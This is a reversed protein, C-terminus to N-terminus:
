GGGGVNGAARGLATVAFDDPPGGHTTLSFSFARQEGPPLGPGVTDSSLASRRFGTVTGQADYTTVFIDVSQAGHQASLNEVLGSVRFQPGTSRGETETVSIPVYASALIGAAQGRIVTMHYSVWDPPPATFLVSFPSCAGPAVIDMSVFTNTEVLPEGASDLLTAQVQVNTLTVATTNVVEGLGLLSDVPTQYFAVGQIQIPLPTPTPLLQGSITQDDTEDVPIILRQGVQLFQPNDIGNAAQLAEVSVGFDFAVAQLTDGKQVVHVIPTPTITPTVTDPLPEAPAATATRRVTGRQTGSPTFTPQPTQSPEPTLVEGCAVLLVATALCLVLLWRSMLRRDHVNMM